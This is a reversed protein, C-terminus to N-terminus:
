TSLNDLGFRTELVPKHVGQGKDPRDHCTPLASSMPFFHIVRYVMRVGKMASIRCQEVHMTDCYLVLSPVCVAWCAVLDWCSHHRLQNHHTCDPLGRWSITNSATASWQPWTDPQTNLSTVNEDPSSALVMTNGKSTSENFDGQLFHRTFHQRFLMCSYGDFPFYCSPNFLWQVSPGCGSGVVSFDCM